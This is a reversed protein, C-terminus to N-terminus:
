RYFDKNIRNHVRSQLFVVFNVLNHIIFAHLQDSYCDGIYKSTRTKKKRERKYHEGIHCSVLDRVILLVDNTIRITITYDRM